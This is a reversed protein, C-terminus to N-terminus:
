AHELRACESKSLNVAVVNYLLVPLCFREALHQVTPESLWGSKCYISNFARFCQRRRPTSDTRWTRGARIVTGLYVFSDDFAIPANDLCVNNSDKAYNTGIRLVHCKATNFKLDLYKMEDNCMNLMLQLKCLSGSLLVIDDAYFLCCLSINDITESNIKMQWADQAQTYEGLWPLFKRVHVSHAM